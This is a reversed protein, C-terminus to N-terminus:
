APTLSASGWWACQTLVQQLAQKSVPKTLYQDATYPHLNVIM